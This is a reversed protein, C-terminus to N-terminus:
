KIIHRKFFEHFKDHVLSFKKLSPKSFYMTMKLGLEADTYLASCGPSPLAGDKACRIRTNGDLALLYDDELADSSAVAYHTKLYSLGSLQQKVYYNNREQSFKMNEEFPPWKILEGRYEEESLIIRIKTTNSSSHENRTEIDEYASFDTMNLVLVIGQGKTPRISKEFYSAPFLFSFEGVSFSFSSEHKNCGCLFFCLAILPLRLARRERRFRKTLM